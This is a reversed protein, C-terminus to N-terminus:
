KVLLLKLNKKLNKFYLYKIQQIVQIKISKLKNEINKYGNMRLKVKKQM